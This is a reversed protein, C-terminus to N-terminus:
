EKVEVGFFPDRKTFQKKLAESKEVDEIETESARSASRPRQDLQTKLAALQETLSKVQAKLAATEDVLSKSSTGVGSELADQREMLDAQSDMLAMVFKGLTKDTEAAIETDAPKDVSKYEINRKNLEAVVAEIGKDLLEAANDLGLMKNLTEGRKDTM